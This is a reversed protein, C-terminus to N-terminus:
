VEEERSITLTRAHYDIVLLADKLLETGIIFDDQVIVEVYRTEGLWEIQALAVLAQKRSHGVMELEKFGGTITLGLEDVLAHPLVLACRAGTDVLCEIVRGALLRMHVLADLQDNVRGNVYAM